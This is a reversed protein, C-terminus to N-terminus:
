GQRAFRNGVYREEGSNICLKQIRCGTVQCEGLAEKEKILQENKGRLIILQPLAVILILGAWSRAISVRATITIILYDKDYATMMMMMVVVVVVVMMMMMMMMRMRMVMMVGRRVESDKEMMTTELEDHADESTVTIMM